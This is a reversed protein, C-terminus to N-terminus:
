PQARSNIEKEYADPQGHCGLRYHLYHGTEGASRALETIEEGTETTAKLARIVQDSSIRSFREMTQRYQNSTGTADSV